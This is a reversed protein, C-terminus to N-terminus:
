TQLTSALHHERTSPVLSSDVPDRVNAQDVAPTTITAGLNNFELRPTIWWGAAQNLPTEFVGYFNPRISTGKTFEGCYVSGNYIPISLSHMNFGATAGLGLYMPTSEAPTSTQAISSQINYLGCATAILAVFLWRVM